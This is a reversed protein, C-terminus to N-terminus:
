QMHVEAGEIMVQEERLTVRSKKHKLQVMETGMLDIGMQGSISIAEESCINIMQNSNIIIGQEDDLLIELGKGNSLYIQTPTLKLEKGTDTRIVKNRPDSRFGEQNAGTQGEM